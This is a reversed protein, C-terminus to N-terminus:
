YSFNTVVTLLLCEEPKIKVVKQSEEVVHCWDVWTELLFIVCMLYTSLSMMSESKVEEEPLYTPTAVRGEDVDVNERLKGFRTATKM